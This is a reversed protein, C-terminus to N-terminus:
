KLQFRYVLFGMLFLLFTSALAFMSARVFPERWNERMFKELARGKVKYKFSLFERTLIAIYLAAYAALTFPNHVFLRIKERDGAASYRLTLYYLATFGLLFSLFNTVVRPIGMRTLFNPTGWDSWLWQRFDTFASMENSINVGM